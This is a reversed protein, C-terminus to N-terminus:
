RPWAAAARRVAEILVARQGADVLANEFATVQVGAVDAPSLLRAAVLASLEETLTRGFVTPDDTSVTV